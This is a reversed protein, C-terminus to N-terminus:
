VWSRRRRGCVSASSASRRWRWSRARRGSPACPSCPRGSRPGCTAASSTRRLRSAEIQPSTVLTRTTARVVRFYEVWLVLSIGVYLTWYSGPALAALLLVLLLGPLALVVDAVLGLARDAFGGRWGAIIGLIVGPVAASVVSLAALGLSLRIAAALRALMSRGFPDTGLWHLDGPPSLIARLNQRAPDADSLVPVLWAFAALAALLAAGLWRPGAITRATTTRLTHLM